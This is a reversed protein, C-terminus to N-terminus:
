SWYLWILYGVAFLMSGLAFGLDSLYEKHKKFFNM